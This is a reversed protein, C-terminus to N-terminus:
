GEQRKVRYYTKGNVVRADLIVDGALIMDTTITNGTARILVDYFSGHLLQWCVYQVPYSSYPSPLYKDTFHTNCNSWYVKKANGERITISTDAVSMNGGSPSVHYFKEDLFLVATDANLQIYYVSPSYRHPRDEDNEVVILGEQDVKKGDFISRFASQPIAYQGLQNDSSAIGSLAAAATLMEEYTMYPTSDAPKEAGTESDTYTGTEEDYTYINGDTDAYIIDSWGFNSDAIQDWDVDDGFDYGLDGAIDEWLQGDETLGDGSEVSSNSWGSGMVTLRAAGPQMKISM